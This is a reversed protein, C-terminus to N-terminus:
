VDMFYLRAPLTRQHLVRSIVIGHIEPKYFIVHRGHEFRRVGPYIRDCPRGLGPLDALRDFCRALEDLYREAQEEGWTDVTYDFIEALDSVGSPGIQYLSM